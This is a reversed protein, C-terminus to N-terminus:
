VGRILRRQEIGWQGLQRERPEKSRSSPRRGEAEFFAGFDSVNAAWADALPTWSFTPLAELRSVQHDTLNARNKRQGHLFNALRAIRPVVQDPTLGPNNIPLEGTASAFLELDSM